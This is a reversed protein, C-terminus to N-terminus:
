AEEAGLSDELSDQGVGAVGSASAGTGEQSGGLQRAPHHRFCVGEPQYEDRWEETTRNEGLRLEEDTLIM